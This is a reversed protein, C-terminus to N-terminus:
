AGTGLVCVLSTLVDVVVVVTNPTGADWWCSWVIRCLVRGDSSLAPQHARGPVLCVSSDPHHSQTPSAPALMMHMTGLFFSSIGRRRLRNRLNLLASRMEFFDYVKV